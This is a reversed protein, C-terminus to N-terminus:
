FTNSRLKHSLTATTDDAYQLLKTDEKFIVIGKIQSNQGIAFGLIEVAIVFLYSLCPDGQRAGRKLYFYDSSNYKTFIWNALGPLLILAM